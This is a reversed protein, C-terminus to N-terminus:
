TSLTTVTGDLSVFVGTLRGTEYAGTDTAIRGAGTIGPMDVITHGHAVWIGDRRATNFFRPHGWLLVHSPQAEPVEGPDLAAHAVVVNGSRWQLPRTRLWPMVAPGIAEELVAAVETLSAGMDKPYPLDYSALTQCGGHRLWRRGHTAPDDLFDFLMQEHNGILCTVNLSQESLAHLRELVGASHPGRDIYDGTFVIDTADLRTCAKIQQLLRELLDLRGHLDGVLWLPRLPAPPGFQVGQPRRRLRNMVQSLWNATVQQM